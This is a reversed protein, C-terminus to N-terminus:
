KRQEAKRRNEKSPWEKEQMGKLICDKREERQKENGVSSGLPQELGKGRLSLLKIFQSKL